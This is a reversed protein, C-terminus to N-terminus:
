HAADEPQAGPFWETHMDGQRGFYVVRKGTLYAWYGVVGAAAMLRMFEPWRIEDSQAARIAAIVQPKSFEAAVSDFEIDIKDTLTAGDILYVISQARPLDIFYSEVGAALMRGVVEPFILKGAHSQALVERVADTNIAQAIM